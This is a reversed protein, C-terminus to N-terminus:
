LILNQIRDLFNLIIQPNEADTPLNLMKKSIDYATPYLSKDFNWLSLNETTPHLPSCFWEGLPIKNQEALKLVAKRDKVM